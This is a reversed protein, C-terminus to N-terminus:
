QKKTLKSLVVVTDSNGMTQTGFGEENPTQLVPYKENKKKYIEMFVELCVVYRCELGDNTVPFFEPKDQEWQEHYKCNSLKLYIRCSQGLNGPWNTRRNLPLRKSVFSPPPFRNLWLHAM